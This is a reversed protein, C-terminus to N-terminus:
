FPVSEEREVNIEDQLKTEGFHERDVKACLLNPLVFRLTRTGLVGTVNDEKDDDDDVDRYRADAAVVMALGM